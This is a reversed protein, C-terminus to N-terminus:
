EGCLDELVVLMRRKLADLDQKSIQQDEGKQIRDLKLERGKEREREQEQESDGRGSGGGRGSGSGGGGGGGGRDVILTADLAFFPVGM